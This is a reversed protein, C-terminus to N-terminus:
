GHQAGESEALQSGAVWDLIAYGILMIGSVPLCMYVWHMSVGLAASYQELERTMSILQSGGGVLVVASFLIVILHVFRAHWVQQRVSLKQQLLDLGLHMKKHYAYSAGLMGIWVLLFRALEETWQSPDNFFYRSVIQWCVCLVMTAILLALFAKFCEDVASILQKLM